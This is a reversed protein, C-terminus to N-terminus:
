QGGGAGGGAGGAGGNGSSPTVAYVTSSSSPTLSLVNGTRYRQVGALAADGRPPDLPRGTLLDRPDAVMLSLNTADACGYNSSVTNSHDGAAPKTWNPCDPPRVVYREIYINMHNPSGTTAVAPLTAAGLGRRSLDHALQAIRATAMPDGASPEFYIRDDPTAEATDLFYALKESEDQSLKNASPAFTAVHRLKVYDVHLDKPAEAPTWESAPPTCGAVALGLSLCLFALSRVM